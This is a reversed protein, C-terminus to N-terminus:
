PLPALTRPSPCIIVLVTLIAHAADLGLDIDALPDLRLLAGKPAQLDHHSHCLNTTQLLRDVTVPHHM